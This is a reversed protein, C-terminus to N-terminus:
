GSKKRLEEPRPSRTIARALGRPRSEAVGVISDELACAPEYGLEARARAISVEWRLGEEPDEGHGSRIESSSGLVEVCARALEANTIARGSALNFVGSPGRELWAAVAAAVDRVDVYDQARTGRGALELAEGALARRVFTSFIRGDPLGPGVPSSLRFSAAPMGRRAALETLREGFLKSAHYATPPDVPHEEDVPLRGPVGIVPLSSIFAFRGSRWREALWHVNLAGVCNARGVEVSHPDRDIVAAAHVIAECPEMEAVRELAERDAVDAAVAAATHGHPILRRSLGVVEHGDDTLRAAIAGGVHGSAGTVLIRV